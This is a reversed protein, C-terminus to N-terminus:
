AAAEEDDPWISGMWVDLECCIRDADGEPVGDISWRRITAVSVGLHGALQARTVQHAPLELQRAALAELPAWPLKTAKRTTTQGPTIGLAGLHVGLIREATTVRMTPQHGHVIRHVGSISVGSRGAIDKLLAGHSRLWAIHRRVEAADVKRARGDPRNRDRMYAVTYASQAATCAPCRCRDLTYCARTGHERTM